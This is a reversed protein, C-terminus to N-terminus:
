FSASFQIKFYWKYAPLIGDVHAKYKMVDRHM